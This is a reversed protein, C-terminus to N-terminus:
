SALRRPDCADALGPHAGPHPDQPGTSSASAHHSHTPHHAPTTADQSRLPSGPAIEAQQLLDLHDRVLLEVDAQQEGVELLGPGPDRLGPSGILHQFLDGLPEDNGVFEGTRDEEAPLLHEVFITLGNEVGVPFRREFRPQVHHVPQRFLLPHLQQPQAVARRPRPHNPAEGLLSALLGAVLLDGLEFGLQGGEVVLETLVLGGELVIEILVLQCEPEGGAEGHREIPFQELRKLQNVRPQLPQDVPQVREDGLGRGLEVGMGVGDRHLPDVAQHAVEVWKIRRGFHQLPQHDFQEGQPIVQGLIAELGQPLVVPRRDLM